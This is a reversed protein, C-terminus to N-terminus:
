DLVARRDLESGTRDARPERRNRRRLRRRVVCDLTRRVEELTRHPIEYTDALEYLVPLHEQDNPRWLTEKTQILAPLSIVPVDHGDVTVFDLHDQLDNYDGIGTVQHMVDVEGADTIFIEVEEIFAEHDTPRDAGLEHLAAGLKALNANTTRVVTDVDSTRLQDQPAGLLVAANAGVIVYEVDHRDFVEIIHNIDYSAMTVEEDTPASPPM